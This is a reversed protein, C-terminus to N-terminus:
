NESEVGEIEVMENQLTDIASTLRYADDIIIDCDIDEYNPILKDEM